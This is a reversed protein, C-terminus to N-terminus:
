GEHAFEKASTNGKQGITNQSYDVIAHVSNQERQHSISSNDPPVACSITKKIGQDKQRAQYNTGDHIRDEGLKRNGRLCIQLYSDLLCHIKQEEADQRNGCRENHRRRIDNAKEIVPGFIGMSKWYQLRQSRAEDKEIYIRHQTGYEHARM